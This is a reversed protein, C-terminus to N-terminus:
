GNRENEKRIMEMLERYFRRIRARLFPNTGGQAELHDWERVPLVNWVGPIVTGGLRTEKSPDTFPCRASVTNVLGDNGAWAPSLVTGGETEKHFYRGMARATPQLVATMMLEPVEEESRRKKKTRKGPVSIYRVGPVMHIEKNLEAARDVRLDDRAWDNEPLKLASVRRIAESLKESKGKLFGFQELKFDYIGRLDAIGMVKSANVGLWEILSAYGPWAEFLSSGNHPTSICVVTRVWAGKGGTFLPSVDEGSAEREEPAGHELLHALLRITTGGFSHGVLDVPKEASWGPALANEFTRGYRAHGCRAAHAKGYDVRTGTLQAYLECSRDWVGSIPGVSAAAVDYGEKRLWAMLDGTAMGWNPLIKWLPDSEGWGFIGHVFVTKPM